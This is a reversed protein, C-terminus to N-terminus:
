FKVHLLFHGFEAFEFYHGLDMSFSSFPPLDPGRSWFKGVGLRDATDALSRFSPINALIDPYDNMLARPLSYPITKREALYLHSVFVVFINNITLKHM